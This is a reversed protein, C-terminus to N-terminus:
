DRVVATQKNKKFKPGCKKSLFYSVISNQKYTSRKQLCSERDMLNETLPRESFLEVPRKKVPWTPLLM